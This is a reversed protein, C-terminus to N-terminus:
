SPNKDEESGREGDATSGECGISGDSQNSDSGSSAAEVGEKNVASYVGYEVSEILGEHRLKWVTTAVCGRTYVIKYKAYVCVLIGNVDIRPNNKIVDLIINRMSLEKKNRKNTKKRLQSLLEDPLRTTNTEM